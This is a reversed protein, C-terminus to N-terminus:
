TELAHIFRVDRGLLSGDMGANAMVTGLVDEPRIDVGFLDPQGTRLNIPQKLMGEDSSAGVM